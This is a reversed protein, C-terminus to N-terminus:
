IQQWQGHCKLFEANKLLCEGARAFLHIKVCM